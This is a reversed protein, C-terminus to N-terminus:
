KNQEQPTQQAKLERVLNEMIQTHQQMQSELTTFRKELAPDLPSSTEDVAKTATITSTLTRLELLNSNVQSPLAEVKSAM